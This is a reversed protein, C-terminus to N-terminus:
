GVNFEATINGSGLADEWGNLNDIRGLRTYSWSNSGYFMVLQSSNYLVIDGSKTRTQVDNASLTRGLSGVKEFGSYDSMEVTLGETKIIEYFEKAAANDELTASFTSGNVNIKIKMETAQTENQTVESATQTSEVASDTVTKTEKATDSCASFTFIILVFSIIIAFRKM